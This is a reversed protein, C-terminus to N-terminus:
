DNTITPKKRHVNSSKMSTGESALEAKMMLENAEKEADEEDSERDGYGREAAASAGAGAGASASFPDIQGSALMPTTTGPTPQGGLSASQSKLAEGSSGSEEHHPFNPKRLATRFANGILAADGPNFSSASALSHSSDKNLLARRSPAGGLGLDLDSSPRRAYPVDHDETYSKEVDDADRSRRRKAGAAAAAGLGLGAMAGAGAGAAAGLGSAGKEGAGAGAGAVVGGDGLDPSSPAISEGAARAYQEQRRRQLARLVFWAGVLAALLALFGLVAIVAIAWRPVSDGSGAGGQVNRPGATATATGSRLASNTAFVSALSSSAAALSSLAAANGPDLTTIGAASLSSIYAALSASEAALSASRESASSAAALVSSLTTPAATQIMQFTPQHPEGGTIRTGHAAVIFYFAHTANQGETWSTQTPLWLENPSHSTPLAM